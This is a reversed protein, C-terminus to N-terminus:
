LFLYELHSSVFRDYVAIFCYENEAEMVKSLVLSSTHTKKLKKVGCCNMRAKTRNLYSIKEKKKKSKQNPNLGKLVYRNAPIM